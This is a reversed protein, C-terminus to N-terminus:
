FSNPDLGMVSARTVPKRSGMLALTRPHCQGLHRPLQATSPSSATWDRRHLDPIWDAKQPSLNLGTDGPQHIEKESLTKGDMIYLDVHFIGVELDSSSSYKGDREGLLYRTTEFLPYQHRSQLRRLYTLQIIQLAQKDALATVLSSEKGVQEFKGKTLVHLTQQNRRSGLRGVRVCDVRTCGQRTRRQVTWRLGPRTCALGWATWRQWCDGHLGPKTGDLVALRRACDHLSVYDLLQACMLLRVIWYGSLGAAAYDLLWLRTCDMDRSRHAKKQGHSKGTPKKLTTTPKMLNTRPTVNIVSGSLSTAGVWITGHGSGQEEEPGRAVIAGWGSRIGSDERSDDLSERMGMVGCTNMTGGGM